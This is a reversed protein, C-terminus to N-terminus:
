IRQRSSSASRYAQNTRLSPFSFGFLGSLGWRRTQHGFTPKPPLASGADVTPSTRKQGMVSRRGNSSTAARVNSM